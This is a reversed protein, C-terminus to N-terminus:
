WGGLFSKKSASFYEVWQQRRQDGKGQTSLFELRSAMLTTLSKCLFPTFCTWKGDGVKGLTNKHSIECPRQKILCTGILSTMTWLKSEGFNWRNRREETKFFFWNRAYQIVYNLVKRLSNRNEKKIPQKWIVALLTPYSLSDLCEGENEDKNQM